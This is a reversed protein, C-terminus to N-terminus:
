RLKLAARIHDHPPAEVPGGADWLALGRDLAALPVGAADALAAARRELLMWEGALLARKAATVTPDDGEVHLADAELLHVGAAGLLVLLEFRQARSLFSMREFARAFRRAPSWDRDGGIAAEQSGAREVWARYAAASQRAPADLGDPEVGYAPRAEIVASQLEPRDPGTLALLFALWTASERDSEEAVQRHPGPPELRAAGVALCAALREADATAKVGPVLDHRYGDDAARALRRTM